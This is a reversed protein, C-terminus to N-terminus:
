DQTVAAFFTTRFKKHSWAAAREKAKKGLAEARTPDDLLAAVATALAEPDNPEVLVGTEGDVIAEQLGGVRSAVVPIGFLGADAAGMGYGEADDPIDKSPYIVVRAVSFWQRVVEDTCRGLFSVVDSLGFDRAMEEWAQREPGDGICVLLADPVHKKLIQMARIAVDGGKRAVFRNVFLIVRKGEARTPRPTATNEPADICGADWSLPPHVVVIKKQPIGYLRVVEATAQSNAVIRTARHLVLAAFFRKWLTKRPQVVDLGHCLVVVRYRLVRAVIAPYGMPLVHSILLTDAKTKRLLHPVRWFLSIWGFRGNQLTLKHESYPSAVVVRERDEALVGLYRAVGGTDPPFELTALLIKM